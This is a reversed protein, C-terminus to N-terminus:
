GLPTRCAIPGRDFFAIEVPNETDSFDILSVGGQYWAQVLIDRGPVPVISSNHAVCNEQSTQVAPMKFYSGFEMQNNRSIDFLADAGWELADTVRCRPSTGGGWEDTFM